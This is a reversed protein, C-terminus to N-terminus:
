RWASACTAACASLCRASSANSACAPTVQTTASCRATRSPRCTSSAPDYVPLHGVPSGTYNVRGQFVFQGLPYAGRLDVQLKSFGKQASDFYQAATAWGSRPVYIRDLHDLDLTAFWGGYDVTYPPIVAPGISTVAHKRTQKWGVRAQGLTGIRVGVPLQGTLDYVDFEALKHDDEFVYVNQREYSITPDVFYRQTAELPQYFDLGLRSRTGIEGVALLEAGLSNMWTKQYAARVMYSSGTGTNSELGLGFRLYDPGWSKEVPTVRLINRERERLLNYDVSEYYGDGYVRLLDENLVPTNLPEGTKQTIHWRVDAPNVYTLGTIQIEDVRQPPLEPPDIRRRWAAYQVEGVALRQLSEAAALAATRGRDATESTRQFDGASIGDLDPKIYVDGPKLTALSQTVNQETLINVMQATVSILSGVQDARLLPSGVNIAIVVDARCRERAERIPVNDVLGGDVLQHGDREVPAMLGPVSMSARMAQTLSGDRIVVRGGSGIDTAIISLPLPLDEIFREGRDAGVLQNFLAKIKQGSVIGEPARLGKDSVGIETAPLFAQSLRKNRYSM